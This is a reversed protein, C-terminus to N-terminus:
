LLDCKFNGKLIPLDVMMATENKTQESSFDSKM